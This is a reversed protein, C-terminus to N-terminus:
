VSGSPCLEFGAPHEYRGREDLVRYRIKECDEVMGIIM